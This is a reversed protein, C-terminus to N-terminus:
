PISARLEVSPSRDDVLRWLAVPAAGDVLLTRQGLDTGAVILTEITV